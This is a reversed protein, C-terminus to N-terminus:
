SFPYYDAPYNPGLRSIGMRKTRGIVPIYDPNNTIYNKLAKIGNFWALESRKSEREKEQKQFEDILAGQGIVWHFDRPLRPEDTNQVLDRVEVEADVYYTIASAPKPVLAVNFYRSRVSGVPIVALDGGGDVTTDGAYSLTIEGVATDSIFFNTVHSINTIATSASVATTGNLLAGTITRQRDNARIVEFYPTIATDSTSSSKVSIEKNSPPQRQVPSEGLDTYWIPTGEYATPDASYLRYEDLTMYSLPYDNDREHVGLVKTIAQPFAYVSNTTDSAFTIIFQRLKEMGEMTLLERHRENLFQKVRDSIATVPSDAHGTRRYVYRQMELFTM